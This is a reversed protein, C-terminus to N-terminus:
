GSPARDIEFWVTKGRKSPMAGWRDAITDIINLGRGRLQAPSPVPPLAPLETGVDEVEVRLTHGATHWVTLWCGDPNYMIANNVLETVGLLAAEGFPTSAEKGLLRRMARRAAFSSTSADSLRLNLEPAPRLM